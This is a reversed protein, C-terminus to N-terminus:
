GQLRGGGPREGPCVGGAELPLISVQFEKFNWLFELILFWFRYDQIWFGSSDEFGSVQNRIQHHNLIRPFSFSSFGPRQGPRPPQSVVGGRKRGAEFSWGRGWAVLSLFNPLCKPSAELVPMFSLLSLSSAPTLPCGSGVQFHGTANPGAM